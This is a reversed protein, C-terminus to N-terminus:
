IHILSLTLGVGWWDLKTKRTVELRNHAALIVAPANKYKGPISINDFGPLEMAWVENRVERALTAYKDDEKQASAAPATLLFLLLLLLPRVAKRPHHTAKM